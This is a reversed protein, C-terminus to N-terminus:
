QFAEIVRTAEHLIKFAAEGMANRKEDLTPNVETIEFCCVKPESLIVSLFAIVEQIDLGNPVPTGTGHSTKEPDLSDVDFSVHIMDVDKLVRLAQKATNKMGRERAVDVKFVTMGEEEILYDEEEETDRLALFVIDKGDVKPSKGGVSKLVEWAKKTQMNIANARLGFGIRGQENLGLMAALPMGHMNGSPSTYPTHLDAHADIWIIGLSKDPYAKTLGSITGGANSHDGTLVIPFHGTRLANAVIDSTREYQRVVGEIRKAHPTAEELETDFLLDNEHAVHQVPYRRFYENKANEAATKIAGVGLSSGRTGAGIESPVDILKIKCMM